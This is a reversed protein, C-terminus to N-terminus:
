NLFMIGKEFCFSLNRSHVYGNYMIQYYFDFFEERKTINIKMEINNRLIWTDSFNDSINSTSLFNELKELGERELLNMVMYNRTREYSAVKVEMQTALMLLLYALIFIIAIILPLVFGEENKKMNKM